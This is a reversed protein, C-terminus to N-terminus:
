ISSPWGTLASMDLNVTDVFGATIAKKSYFYGETVLGKGINCIVYTFMKYNRQGNIVLIIYRELTGKVSM